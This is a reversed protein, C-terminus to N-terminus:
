KNRIYNRYGILLKKVDMLLKALQENETAMKLRIAILYQTELESISGIAINVYQHLERDGARASGEAINSPISVSARRMQATLGYKEENPFSKTWDYVGVVLDMGKKWVELDKHNM